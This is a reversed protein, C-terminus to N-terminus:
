ILWGGVGGGGGVEDVHGGVEVDVDGEGREEVSILNSVSCADRGINFGPALRSISEASSSSSSSVAGLSCNNSSWCSDLMSLLLDTM